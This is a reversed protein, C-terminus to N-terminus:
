VVFKVCSNTKKLQLMRATFLFFIFFMKFVYKAVGSNDFIQEVDWQVILILFIFYFKIDKNM